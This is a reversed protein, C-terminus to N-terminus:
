ALAAAYAAALGAQLSALKVKAKTLDANADNLQDTVVGLAKQLRKYDVVAKDYAGYLLLKLSTLPESAPKPIALQKISSSRSCGVRDICRVVSDSQDSALTIAAYSEM